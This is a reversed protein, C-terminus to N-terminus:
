FHVKSLDLTGGTNPGKPGAFSMKHSGWLAKFGTITPLYHFFLDGSYLYQLDADTYRAVRAERRLRHECNITISGVGKDVAISMYDMRGEWITEPTDILTGSSRAVVGLMVLASRNQYVENQATGVLSSDVGSITLRIPRALMTVDEEVAEIGGFQGLALYTHGSYSLNSVYDSAYVHGSAFDLDVMICADLTDAGLATANNTSAIRSV